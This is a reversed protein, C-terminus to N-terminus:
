LKVRKMIWGKLFRAKKPYLEVLGMYFMCQQSNLMTMLIEEGGNQLPCLKFAERTIAGIRGDVKLLRPLKEEAAAKIMLLSNLGRQLFNAATSMGVNVATDFVETAILQSSVSLVDLSLKLWFNNFYFDKVYYQLQDDTQLLPNLVKATAGYEKKYSDVIAWGIWAPWFKRSVGKYTEWGNDKPDNVWGGENSCTHDYAINFQQTYTM